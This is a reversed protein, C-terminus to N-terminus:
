GRPDLLLKGTTRRAALDIQAQAAQALPYTAGVVVRLEGRGARAFLDDIAVRAWDPRDWLHNFWFGAVTRSTRLLKGTRLENQERSSIGHVVIRGFPALAEFCADFVAGGALELVIDVARGENAELLRETLGDADGDVAADAGLELTLARKEQTSATAIVRGAGLLRGLQTALTGVGGAASVIVVSEGPRMRASTEYLHWATLGQIMLALATEDSVDDPIPFTRAAPATAYEAYGGTGCVAVVREGTDLRRGAVEIGPVLPLEAKQVYVNHRQHTDAFNLGARSVEILLEGEAPVPRPLEVLELLEPGGFARLQIARM